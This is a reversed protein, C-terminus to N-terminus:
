SFVFNLSETATDFQLTVKEAVRVKNSDLQGNTVYVQNDSYTQPNAAQSTAGVLFIKSSTDTSGTTNKTYTPVYGKGDEGIKVEVTDNATKTNAIIGGRHESTPSPPIIDYIISTGDDAYVEFGDSLPRTTENAM